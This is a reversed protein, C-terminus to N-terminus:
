FLSSPSRPKAKATASLGLLDEVQGAARMIQYLDLRDICTGPLMHAALYPQPRTDVGNRHCVLYAVCEAEVERVKHAPCPRVPVHLKPDPGLHGLFLHALEHALTCFRVPHSHNRNLTIRYSTSGDRDSPKPRSLVEIAGADGDGTDVDHCEIHKSNLRSVFKSFDAPLVPGSSWFANVDKPLEQGETDQVDYVLDVPGFPRLILLPRADPKPTRKFRKQWDRATAAYLMGPKQIQLLMANFPAFNRLRSVFQMLAKFDDSRRYLQADSLLQDLLSRTDDFDPDAPDPALPDTMTRRRREDAAPTAVTPPLTM